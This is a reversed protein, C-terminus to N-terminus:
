VLKEQALVIIFYASWKRWGLRVVIESVPAAAFIDIGRIGHHNSGSITITLSVVDTM